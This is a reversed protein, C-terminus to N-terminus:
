NTLVVLWRGLFFNKKLWAGFDQDANYVFRM